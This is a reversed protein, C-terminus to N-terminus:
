IVIRVSPNVGKRCFVAFGANDFLKYRSAIIIMQKDLCGEVVLGNLKKEIQVAVKKIHVRVRALM